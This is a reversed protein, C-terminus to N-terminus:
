SVIIQMPLCLPPDPIVVISTDARTAILNTTGPANGYFTLQTWEVTMTAVQDDEVKWNVQGKATGPLQRGISTFVEPTFSVTDGQLIHFPSSPLEVIAVTEFILKPLNCSPMDPVDIQRETDEYGVLLVDYQGNRILPVQVWGTEDTRKIVRETVVGMGDLLLPSFKTIIQIDLGKQPSGDPKRFYGSCMCLRPDTSEPTTIETGTMIFQVPELSAAPVDIYAPNNIITAFKFARCQYRRFEPLLFSAIGRSDTLSEGYTGTGDEEMVKVWVGSIPDRSTYNIVRIDVPLAM